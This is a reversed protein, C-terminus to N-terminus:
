EKRATEESIIQSVRTAAAAAIAGVIDDLFTHCSPKGPKGAENLVKVIGPKNVDIDGFNTQGIAGYLRAIDLGFIEDVGFVGLDNQIIDQIPGKFLGAEALRDIEAGLQLLHFTDRLSLIKEVSVICEQIDINKNYKLQQNYAIEAIERVTVGREELKEINLRQMEERSYYLKPSM